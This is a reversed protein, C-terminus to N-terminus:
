IVCFLFCIGKDFKSLLQMYALYAGWINDTFSSNIKRKEFNRIIPKHLEEALGKNKMIESKVAGGETNRDFLKYVISVLGKSIWSM